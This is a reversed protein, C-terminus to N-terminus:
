GLLHSASDYHESFVMGRGKFMNVHSFIYDAILQRQGETFSNFFQVMEAETAFAEMEKWAKEPAMKEETAGKLNLSEMKKQVEQPLQSLENLLREIEKQFEESSRCPAILDVLENTQAGKVGLRILCSNKNNADAEVELIWQTGM